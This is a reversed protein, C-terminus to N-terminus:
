NQTWDAIRYIGEKDKEIICEAERRVDRVDASLILRLRNSNLVVKMARASIPISGAISAETDAPSEGLQEYLDEAETITLTPSLAMLMPVSATNVNVEADVRTDLYSLIVELTEPALGDYGTIRGLEDLHEIPSDPVVFNENFEYQDDTSDDDIWDVLAWTLEDVDIDELEMGELLRKYADVMKLVPVGNKDILAGIPFKGYQDEIKLSVTNDGVPILHGVESNWYGDRGLVDPDEARILAVGAAAGSRVLGQAELAALTNAAYTREVRAERQFQVVAVSLLAVVALVILLAAGRNSGM